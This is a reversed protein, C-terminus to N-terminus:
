QASYNFTKQGIEELREDHCLGRSFARSNRGMQDLEIGDMGAVILKQCRKTVLRFELALERHADCPELSTTRTALRKVFHCSMSVIQKAKEIM